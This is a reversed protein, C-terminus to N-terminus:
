YNEKELIKIANLDDPYNVNFIEPSFGEIVVAKYRLQALWYRLSHKPNKRENEIGKLEQSTDMQQHAFVLLQMAANRTIMMTSYQEREGIKLCVAELLNNADLEANFVDVLNPPLYPTDCSLILTRDAVQNLFFYSTIGKLPGEFTILSSDRLTLPKEQTTVDPKIGKLITLYRSLNKNCSVTINKCSLGVSDIAHALMPKGNLEVLGKDEGNFRLSKGGALVLIDISNKM